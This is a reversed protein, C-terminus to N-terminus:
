GKQKEKANKWLMDMEELSMDELSKGQEKAMKEIEIFRNIFKNCSKTLSEEADKQLFRSVNVASFLIDGLEEECGTEDSLSVAQELEAVEKKLDNMAWSLDPYDFGSRAARQQVKQSRMLAPLAAPVDLVAQSHEKHGKTARKIKEWNELVENSNKAEVTGFVHPHREIIKDCVDDIVDDVDFVGAEREMQAHLVVQMLVDGLEERLLKKDNLDIAEVAEYVEEIFNKRISEHTQETDWPCGGPGRLLRIIEVFDNFDYHDKRIFDVM